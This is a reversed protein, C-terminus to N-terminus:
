GQPLVTFRYDVLGLFGRRAMPFHHFVAGAGLSLVEQTEGLMKGPFGPPLAATGYPIYIYIKKKNKKPGQLIIHNSAELLNADCVNSM